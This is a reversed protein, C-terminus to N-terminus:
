ATNNTAKEGKTAPRGPTRPHLHIVKDDETAPHDTPESEPLVERIRLKRYASCADELEAANLRASPFATARAHVRRARLSAGRSARLREVARVPLRGEPHRTSAV